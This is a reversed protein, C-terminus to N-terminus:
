VNAGISTAFLETGAFILPLVVQSQKIFDTVATLSEGFVPVIVLLYINIFVVFIVLLCFAGFFSDVGGLVTGKFVSHLLLVLKKILFVVVIFIVVFALTQIIRNALVGTDIFLSLFSWLENDSMDPKIFGVSETLREAFAASFKRAALYGLVYSGIGGLVRIMGLQWGCFVALLLLAFLVLDALM